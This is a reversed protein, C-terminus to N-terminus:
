TLMFAESQYGNHHNQQEVACSENNKGKPENSSVQFSKGFAAPPIRDAVHILRPITSHLGAVKPGISHPAKVHDSVLVHSIVPSALFLKRTALRIGSTCHLGQRVISPLQWSMHRGAEDALGACCMTKAKRPKQVQNSPVNTTSRQTTNTAQATKEDQFSPVFAVTPHRRFLM